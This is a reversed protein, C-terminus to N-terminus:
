IIFMDIIYQSIAGVKIYAKVRKGKLTEPSNTYLWNYDNMTRFTQVNSNDQQITISYRPNGSDSNALRTVDTVTGEIIDATTKM